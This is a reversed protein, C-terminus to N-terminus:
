AADRGVRAAFREGDRRGLDYTAQVRTPNTYDWKHVPVPESPHVYVRGPLRPISESPYQRTLLVLTPPPPAPITEVPASDILGGDLVPRDGRRYVPTIPPTCSSHLILDAVEDPTRCDHVSAVESVFGAHRGLAAHPGPRVLWEAQYALLGWLYGSRPGLRRPMLAVLVRIDPGAHLRALREADLNALITDRYIQQHPFVPQRKLANLPYVNRRNAAVRAIFYALGDRVVGASVMCAMAAGASVAGIVRPRLPLAPAAVEWFGAQWFCRCGGGSFVVADFQTSM